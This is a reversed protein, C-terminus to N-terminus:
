ERGVWLKPLDWKQELKSAVRDAAARDNLGIVRVRYFTNGDRAGEAVIVSGAEPQLRTSWREAVARQGYSGFNVFWDGSAAPASSASVPVDKEVVAPSVRAPAAPTDTSTAAPAAPDPVAEQAQIQAELGAVMDQLRQNERELTETRATLEFNRENAEQLATRSESVEEPSVATALAARLELVEEQTTARQQVIGYGGAVVMLLAIIGVAILGIPWGRQEFDEVEYEEEEEWEEAAAVEDDDREQWVDHEAQAGPWDEEETAPVARPRHAPQENLDEEWEINLDKNPTYAALRGRESRLFESQEAFLSEEDEELEEPLLDDFAADEDFREERFGAAVDRDRDPEDFAEDDVSYSPESFPDTDTSKRKNTFGPLPQHSSHPPAEHEEKM